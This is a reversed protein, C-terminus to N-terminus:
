FAHILLWWVHGVTVSSSTMFTLLDSDRGESLALPWLILFFRPTRAGEMKTEERSNPRM